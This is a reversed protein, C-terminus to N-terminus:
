KMYKLDSRLPHTQLNIQFFHNAITTPDNCILKCYFLAKWIKNIDAESIDKKSSLWKELVKVAKDRTKKDLFVFTILHSM